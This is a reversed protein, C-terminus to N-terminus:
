PRRPHHRCRIAWTQTVINHSEGFLAAEIRWRLIMSPHYWRSSEVLKNEGLIYNPKIETIARLMQPWLYTMRRAEEEGQLQSPNAPFGGSLVNITGEYKRFNVKYIDKYKDADPFHGTTLCGAAFSM